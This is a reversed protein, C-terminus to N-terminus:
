RVVALQERAGGKYTYITLAGNKDGDRWLRGITDLTRDLRHFDNVDAVTSASAPPSPQRWRAWPSSRYGVRRPTPKTM